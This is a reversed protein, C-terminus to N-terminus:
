TRASLLVSKGNEWDRPKGTGCCAELYAKLLCIRACEELETVLTVAKQLLM